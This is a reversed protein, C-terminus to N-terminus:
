RFIHMYACLIDESGATKKFDRRTAVIHFIKLDGRRPVGVFHRWSDSYLHLIAYM